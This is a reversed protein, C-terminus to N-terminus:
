WGVSQLKDRTTACPQMSSSLCSFFKSNFVSRDSTASLHSLNASDGVRDSRGIVKEIVKTKEFQLYAYGCGFILSRIAVWLYPRSLLARGSNVIQRSDHKVSM